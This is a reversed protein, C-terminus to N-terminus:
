RWDFGNDEKLIDRFLARNDALTAGNGFLHGFDKMMADYTRLSADNAARFANLFGSFRGGIGSLVAARSWSDAGDKAAVEALASVVEPSDSSGLVLASVFRVRQSEDESGTVLSKLLEPHNELMEGMILVAQERVGAHEDAI